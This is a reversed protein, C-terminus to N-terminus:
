IKSFNQSTSQSFCFRLTLRPVATATYM